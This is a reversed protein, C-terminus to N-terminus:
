RGRMLELEVEDRQQPTMEPAASGTGFLIYISLAVLVALAVMMSLQAGKPTRALGLRMFARTVPGIPATRMVRQATTDDFQVPMAPVHM